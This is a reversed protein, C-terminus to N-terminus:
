LKLQAPPEEQLQPNVAYNTIKWRGGTTTSRFIIDMNFLSADAPLTLYVRFKNLDSADSTTGALPEIGLENIGLANVPTETVYSGTGSITKTVESRSGDEDYRITVDIETPQSILGEVYIYDIEKQHAPYGFNFRKTRWIADVPVEITRSVDVYGDFAKYTNPEISSGFYLEGNLIFWCSVNWGRYIGLGKTRLDLVIVTDNYSSDSSSKCAVLIKKDYFATAASTFDYDKVTPRIPDFWDIIRTQSQESAVNSLSRLGGTRSVYFIDNDAGIIGKHTVAGIGPATIIGKTIPYEASVTAAAGENLQLTFLRITDEKFIVWWKDFDALGTIKGGGEPFDEIDADGVLRPSNETFNEPSNITALTLTPGKTPSGAVSLRWDKVIMINGKEIASVASTVQAISVGSAQNSAISACGTFTTSTKGTYTIEDGECILTGSADFGTTSAVTITTSATTFAASATTVATNWKRTTDTGNGIYVADTTSTVYNAFGTTYGSTFGTYLTEWEGTSSSYYELNTGRTRLAVQTGDRRMVVHADPISGSGATNQGFLTKGLRPAISGDAGFDINQAFVCADDQITDAEDVTVMGKGFRSYNVPNFKFEM